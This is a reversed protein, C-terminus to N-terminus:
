RPSAATAFMGRDSHIPRTAEHWAGTQPMQVRAQYEFAVWHQRLDLGATNPIVFVVSDTLAGDRVPLASVRVARGRREHSWRSATDGSALTALIAVPRISGNPVVPLRGAHVVVRVQAPMVYAMGRLEETVEGRTNTARAHFPYAAAPVPAADASPAAARSACGTAAVCAALAALAAVALPKPILTM